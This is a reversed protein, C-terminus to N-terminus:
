GSTCFQVGYLTKRCNICDAAQATALGSAVAQGQGPVLVESLVNAVARCGGESLRLLLLPTPRLNTAVLVPLKLLLKVLLKPKGVVQVIYLTATSNNRAYWATCIYM